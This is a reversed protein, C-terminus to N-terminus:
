VFFRRTPLDVDLRDAPSVEILKEGGSCIWHVTKSLDTCRNENQPRQENLKFDAFCIKNQDLRAEFRRNSKGLRYVYIIYRKKYVLSLAIAILCHYKYRAISKAISQKIKEWYITTNIYSCHLDNVKYLKITKTYNKETYTHIFHRILKVM